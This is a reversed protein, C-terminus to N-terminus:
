DIESRARGRRAKARAVKARRAAEQIEDSHMMQTSITNVVIKAQSPPVVFIGMEKYYNSLVNVVFELDVDWEDFQPKFKPDDLHRKLFSEITIPDLTKYKM